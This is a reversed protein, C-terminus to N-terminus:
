YDWGLNHHERGWYNSGEQNHHERDNYFATFLGVKVGQGLDNVRASITKPRM